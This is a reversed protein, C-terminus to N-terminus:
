SGPFGLGEAADEGTCTPGFTQDALVLFVFEKGCFFKFFMSVPLVDSAIAEKFFILEKAKIVLHSKGSSKNAGSATSKYNTSDPICIDMWGDM